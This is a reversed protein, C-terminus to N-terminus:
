RRSAKLVRLALWAVLALVITAAAMALGAIMAFPAAGLAGAAAAGTALAVLIALGLAAWGLAVAPGLGGLAPGHPVAEAVRGEGSVMARVGSQLGPMPDDTTGGRWRSFDLYHLMTFPLPLKAGDLSVQVIKGADLAENAEARVWLSDRAQASWAVVVCRAAGIEREIVRAYDDGSQLAPDWWLSHGDAALADAIAGVPALNRRSYSVFVDAM